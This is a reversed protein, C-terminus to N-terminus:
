RKYATELMEEITDFVLARQKKARFKRPDYLELREALRMKETQNDNKEAFILAGACHVDDIGPHYDGAGDDDHEGYSANHCSFTGGFPDLMNGAVEEVRSATLRVAYKGKRRFPCSKCPTTVDFRM